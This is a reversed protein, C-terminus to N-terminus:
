NNAGLNNEKIIKSSSVEPNHDHVVQLKGGTSEVIERKVKLHPSHSSVALIDPNILRIFARHDQPDDFNEPLLFVADSIGLEKLQLVRENNSNLPRKKGKLIKVRNDTELGVLLIDGAQKAKQLFKIHEKHLIDFVGTVLVLTKNQARAQHLISKVELPLNYNRM